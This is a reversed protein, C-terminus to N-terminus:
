NNMSYEQSFDEAPLFTDAMILIQSNKDGKNSSLDTFSRNFQRQSTYYRKYLPKPNPECFVWWYFGKRLIKYQGFTSFSPKALDIALQKCM